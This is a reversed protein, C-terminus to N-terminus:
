FRDIYYNPYESLSFVFTNKPIEINTKFSSITLTTETGDNDVEILKYINKTHTDIGLLLYSAQSYTDIPILKIFQIKRGGYLPQMIDWEFRYGQKYFSFIKSPSLDEDFGNGLPEILVEQNESNITHKNIGDSLQEIGMLKLLYADGEVVLSGKEKQQILEKRNVLEYTFTISINDFQAMSESVENLLIEARQEQAITRGIVLLILFLKIQRKM